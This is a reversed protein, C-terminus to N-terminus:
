RWGRAYMVKPVSVLSQISWMAIATPSTRPSPVPRRAAAPESKRMVTASAEAGSPVANIFAMRMNTIGSTIATIKVPTAFNPSGRLSPRKPPVVRANKQTVTM